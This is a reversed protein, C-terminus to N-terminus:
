SARAAEVEDPGGQELSDRYHAPSCGVRRKFAHSFSSATEYGVRRAVEKISADPTSLLREALRMKADVVYDLPTRGTAARFCDFFVSRSMRARRAMLSTTWDEGPDQQIQRLLADLPRLDAPGPHSPDVRRLERDSADTQPNPNSNPLM